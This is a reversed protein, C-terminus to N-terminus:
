EKGPIQVSRGAVSAGSLLTLLPYPRPTTIVLHFLNPTRRFMATVVNRKDFVYIQLFCFLSSLIYM